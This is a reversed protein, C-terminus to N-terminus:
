TQPPLSDEQRVAFPFSRSSPRACRFSRLAHSPDAIALKKPAYRWARPTAFCRPFFKGVAIAGPQCLDRRALPLCSSQSESSRNFLSEHSCNRFAIVSLHVYELASCGSGVGSVECRGHCFSHFGVRNGRVQSPLFRLFRVRLQVTKPLSIKVTLVGRQRNPLPPM